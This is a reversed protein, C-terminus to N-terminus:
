LLHASCLVHAGPLTAVGNASAALELCSLNRGSIDPTGIPETTAALESVKSGADPKFPAAPEKKCMAPHLHHLGEEPRGTEALTELCPGSQPDQGLM